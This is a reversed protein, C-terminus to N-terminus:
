AGNSRRGYARKTKKMMFPWNVAGFQTVTTWATNGMIYISSTIKFTTNGPSRSAPCLAAPKTYPLSGDERFEYVMVQNGAEMRWRGLISKNSCCELLIPFLILVGALLCVAKRRENHRTYLRRRM